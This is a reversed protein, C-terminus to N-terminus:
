KKTSTIYKIIEKKYHIFNDRIIIDMESLYDEFKVKPDVPLVDFKQIETMKNNRRGRNLHEIMVNLLTTVGQLFRRGMRNFVVYTNEKFGLADPINEETDTFVFIEEVGKVAWGAGAELMSYSGNKFDKSFFYVCMSLNNMINAKIEKELRVPSHVKTYFIEDDNMGRAKLISYIFDSFSSSESKHSFFLKYTDKVDIDNKELIGTTLDVYRTTIDDKIQSFNAHKDINKTVTEINQKFVSIAEKRAQIKHRKIEDEIQKEIKQVTDLRKKILDTIITDLKKKLEIIRIDNEDFNQRSTTAIDEKDNDDLYDFHIEGEIYNAYTQTSGIIDLFNEVGLKNRVYLRLQIPNYFTNKSFRDDNERAKKSDITAHVAIWGEIKTTVNEGNDYQIKLSNDHYEVIQRNHTENKDKAYVKVEKNQELDKLEEAPIFSEGLKYIIMFNRFPVSKKITEILESGDEKITKEGKRYDKLHIKAKLNEYSFLNALRSRLSNFAHEGYGSLDVSKVHICTYSNSKSIHERIIVNDVCNDKKSLSPTLDPQNDYLRFDFEYALKPGDSMKTIIDYKDSLFLAALKGIGKRGMVKDANEPMEKRRQFGIKAYNSITEENMGIGDDIIYIDYKKNELHNFILYVNEAKADIGNAILESIASWPNSYLNKGLLKLALASMTFDVKGM